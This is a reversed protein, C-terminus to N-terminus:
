NKRHQVLPSYHAEFDVSIRPWHRLCPTYATLVIDTAPVNCQNDTKVLYGATCTFSAAVGFEFNDYRVVCTGCMIRNLDSEPVYVCFRRLIGM